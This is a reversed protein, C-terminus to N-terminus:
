ENQAGKREYIINLEDSYEGNEEYVFLPPETILKPRGGYAGEILIMTAAKKYSPYIWRLRKPEIKHKKMLIILDVLREPRHIISLKGGPALLAASSEIVDELTCKIEHRAIAASESGSILGGGYEKYPPNCVVNDFVSKGFTKTAEKLDGCVINARDNLGNLAISRGAMEAVSEQIELGTITQAASKHTLLLTIVGNGSCMDMVRAGKKISKTAFDALLMADVGYCFQKPNQILRLNGLNLDDVREYEKIKVNEM